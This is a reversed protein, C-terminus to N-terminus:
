VAYARNRWGNKFVAFSPKRAIIDYYFQLEIEDFKMDFEHPDYANLAAITMFGIFGDIWRPEFGLLKQAKRIANKKGSNVGFVFLEDVVEQSLVKDLKMALWFYEYYFDKVMRMFTYSKFLRKSAELIDGNANMLEIDVAHWGIWKPHASKYIGAVTYDNEGTNKHLFNEPSNFELKMLEGFSKDFDAM